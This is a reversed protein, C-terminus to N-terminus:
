KFVLDHLTWGNSSFKDEREVVCHTYVESSENTGVFPLYLLHAEGGASIKNFDADPTVFTIKLENSGEQYDSYRMGISNDYYETITISSDTDHWLGLADYYWVNGKRSSPM